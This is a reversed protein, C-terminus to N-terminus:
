CSTLINGKARITTLVDNIKQSLIHTATAINSFEHFSDKFYSYYIHCDNIIYSKTLLSKLEDYNECYDSMKKENKMEELNNLVRNDPISCQSSLNGKVELADFQRWVNLLENIINNKNNVESKEYINKVKNNMWYILSNCRRIRQEPTFYRSMDKFTELNRVFQYCFIKFWPDNKKTVSLNDCLKCQDCLTVVNNLMFDFNFSNLKNKLVETKNEM